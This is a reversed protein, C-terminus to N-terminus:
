KTSNGSVPAARKPGTRKPALKQRTLQKTTKHKHLTPQQGAGSRQKRRSTRSPFHNKRLKKAAIKAGKVGGDWTAKSSTANGKPAQPSKKHNKVQQELRKLSKQLMAMEPNIMAEDIIKQGRTREKELRSQEKSYSVQAANLRFKMNKTQLSATFWKEHNNYLVPLYEQLEPMTKQMFQLYCTATTKVEVLTLIKSEELQTLDLRRATIM